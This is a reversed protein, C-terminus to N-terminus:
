IIGSQLKSLQEKVEVNGMHHSVGSMRLKVTLVWFKSSTEGKCCLNFPRAFHGSM